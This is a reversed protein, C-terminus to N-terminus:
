PEVPAPARASWLAGASALVVLVTALVQGPRLGQSLLLLGVAAAFAPELSMMVGFVNSPLTRMAEIELSFPIAASLVAVAAGVALNSPELLGAGGDALGFPACFLSSIAMGIALGQGGSWQEGVRKGLLIYCGWFFGALLAFLVGALDMSEDGIGGSLLLIGVAAMAAWILDLRRRSTILAVGLPGTFELTVATGLPIRDISAFFSLNVAALVAGFVLALKAQGRSMRYRPRWIIGLLIASFFARFFVVGGTGIQDFLGTALAAGLQISTIAGLVM